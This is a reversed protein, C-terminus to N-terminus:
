QSLNVKQHLAQIIPRRSITKVMKRETSRKHNMNTGCSSLLQLKLRACGSPKTEGLSVQRDKLATLKLDGGEM